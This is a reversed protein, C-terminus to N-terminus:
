TARVQFDNQNRRLKDISPSDSPSGEQRQYLRPVEPHREQSITQLNELRVASRM